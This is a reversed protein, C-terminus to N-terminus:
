AFRKRFRLVSLGFFLAALALMIALTVLMEPLGGGSLAMQWSRVAWGHPVLLSVRGITSGSGAAMGGSFISMMGLMGMMTLVGGYVVGSQRLNTVLSTIFLGFGASLLIMVLAVSAVRAPPGWEIGFLLASVVLLVTVQVAMIALAAILKGGLVAAHPTPTSFLRSLTGGEEEELLTQAMAAGTFFVFFVMMGATVQSVITDALTSPQLLGAAPSRVDLLTSTGDVRNEGQAMAWAAYGASLAQEGAQDLSLGLGSLQAQAVSAAIANGTLGDVVQRVIGTVIGPGITLTPDQYVTIVARGDPDRTAATFGAPIIVAVGAEQRDVAARAEAEGPMESVWLLSSLDDTKLVDVLIQGASFGGAAPVPEDLNAVSVKTAPVSLGGDEGGMGGFALYFIGSALLPMALGFAWFSPGRVARLLDKLALDVLKM